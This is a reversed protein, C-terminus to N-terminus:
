FNHQLNLLLIAEYIMTRLLIKHMFEIRRNSIFENTARMITANIYKNKENKMSNTQRQRFHLKRCANQKLYVINSPSIFLMNINM